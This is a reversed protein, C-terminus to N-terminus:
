NKRSSQPNMQRILKDVEAIDDSDEGGESVEEDQDASLEAGTLALDVVKPNKLKRKVQNNDRMDVWTDADDGFIDALPDKGTSAIRATEDEDYDSDFDDDDDLPEYGEAENSRDFMSTPSATRARRALRLKIQAPKGESADDVSASGAKRRKDHNM